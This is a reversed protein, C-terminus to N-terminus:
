FCFGCLSTSGGGERERTETKYDKIFFVARSSTLFGCFSFLCVSICSMFLVGCLVYERWESGMGRDCLVEAPCLSVLEM